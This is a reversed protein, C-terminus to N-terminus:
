EGEGACFSTNRAGHDLPVVCPPLRRPPSFFTFLIAELISAGVVLLGAGDLIIAILDM